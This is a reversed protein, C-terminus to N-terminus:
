HQAALPSALPVLIDTEDRPDGPSKPQRQPWLDRGSARDVLRKVDVYGWKGGHQGSRGAGFPSRLFLSEDNKFANMYLHLYIEGLASETYNFLTITGRGAVLHEVADLRAELAYSAVRTPRELAPEAATAPPAATLLLATGALSVWRSSASTSCRISSECRM